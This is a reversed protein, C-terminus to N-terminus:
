DAWFITNDMLNFYAEYWIVEGNEVLDILDNKRWNEPYITKEDLYYEERSFWIDTDYFAGVNSYPTTTHVSIEGSADVTLYRYDGSGIFTKYPPPPPHIVSVVPSVMRSTNYAPTPLIISQM